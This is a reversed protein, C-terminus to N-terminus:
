CCPDGSCDSCCGSLTLHHGTVAFGTLREVKPVAEDVLCGPIEAVAGCESCVIHEHHHGPREFRTRGDGLDVRELEGDDALRVLARYVSSPDAPVGRSRLAEHAEDLSWGHNDSDAVLEAVADRVHSPRGV